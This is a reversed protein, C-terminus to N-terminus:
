SPNSFFSIIDFRANFTDLITVRLKNRKTCISVYSVRAYDITSKTRSSFKICLYNLLTSFKKSLVKKDFWVKILFMESCSKIMIPLIFNISVPM